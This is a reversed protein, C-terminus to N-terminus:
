EAATEAEPTRWGGKQLAGQIDALKYVTPRKPDIAPHLRDRPIKMNARRLETGITRGIMILRDRRAEWRGWAVPDAGVLHHAIQTMTLWQPDSHAAFADLLQRVISPYDEPTLPADSPSPTSEPRPPPVAAPLGTPREPAVVPELKALIRTLPASPAGAAIAQATLEAVHTSTNRLATM